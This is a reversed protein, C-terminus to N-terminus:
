QLISLMAGLALGLQRQSSARPRNFYTARNRVLRRSGSWARFCAGTARITKETKTDHRDGGVVFAISRRNELRWNGVQRQRQAVKGARDRHSIAMTMSDAAGGSPDVFAFSKVGSVPPLERRGTMVVSDLVEQSVFAELDSRFQAGYESRAVAEDDDYARQMVGVPVSPNMTQSDAQWVFVPDNDQGFHEKYAKWLEGRRSHPSSIVILLAGPVTAM